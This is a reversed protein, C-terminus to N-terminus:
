TTSIPNSLTNQATPSTMQPLHRPWSAGNASLPRWSNIAYRVQDPTAKAGSLEIHHTVFLTTTKYAMLTSSKSTGNLTKPAHLGDHAAGKWGLVLVIEPM